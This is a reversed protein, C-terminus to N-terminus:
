MIKIKNFIEIPPFPKVLYKINLNNEKLWKLWINMYELDYINKDFFIYGAHKFNKFDEVTVQRVVSTFKFINYIHNKLIFINRVM